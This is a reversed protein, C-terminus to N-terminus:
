KVINFLNANNAVSIFIVTVDVALKTMNNECITWFQIPNISNILQFFMSFHDHFSDTPLLDHLKFLQNAQSITIKNFLSIVFTKKPFVCFINLQGQRKTAKCIMVKNVFFLIGLREIGPIVM